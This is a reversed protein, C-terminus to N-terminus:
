VENYRQRGRTELFDVGESTPMLDPTMHTGFLGIHSSRSQLPKITVKQEKALIRNINWDWGAESGDPNGTSYDKDWTDRFYTEWNKRWVGWILPSFSGDQMIQNAKDGGITSFANVIVINKSTEYEVSTWEFFELIDQSVIVDDEALVVFDAGDEFATNLANWPNVLVGLKEPNIRTTVTTNLALAIEAVSAQQDSPDIFFTTNWGQLGRANNWSSITRQLYEPRNYATFVLDRRM